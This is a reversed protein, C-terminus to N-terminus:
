EMRHLELDIEEEVGEEEEEEEEEDGSFIAHTQQSNLGRGILMHVRPLLSDRRTSSGTRPVREAQRDDEEGDTKREEESRSRAGRTAPHRWPAATCAM